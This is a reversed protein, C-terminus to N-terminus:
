IGCISGPSGGVRTLSVGVQLGICKSDTSGPFGKIRILVGPTPPPRGRGASRAMSSICPPPSAARVLAGTEKWSTRHQLRTMTFSLVSQWHYFLYQASRPPGQPFAPAKPPPPSPRAPSATSKGPERAYFHDAKTTRDHFLGDGPRINVYHIHAAAQAKDYRCILPSEQLEPSIPSPCAEWLGLQPTSITPFGQKYTGSAEYARYQGWLRPHCLGCTVSLEEGEQHFAVTRKYRDPPLGQPRYAQKQESCMPGYGIKFDGLQM